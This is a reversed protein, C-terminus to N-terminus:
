FASPFVEQDQVAVLGVKGVTGLVELFLPLAFGLYMVANYYGVVCRGVMSVVIDFGEAGIGGWVRCFVAVVADFFAGFSGDCISSSM